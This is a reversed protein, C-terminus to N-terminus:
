VSCGPKRIDHVPRNRLWSSSTTFVLLPRTLKFNLDVLVALLYKAYAHRARRSTCKVTIYFCKGRNLNILTFCYTTTFKTNEVYILIIFTCCKIYMEYHLERQVLSIKV